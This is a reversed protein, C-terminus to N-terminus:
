RRRRWARWGVLGVVAVVAAIGGAVALNAPRVRGPRLPEPEPTPLEDLALGPRRGGGVVDVPTGPVAPRWRPHPSPDSAFSAMLHPTGAPDDGVAFWDARVADPRLDLRVYGRELLDSWVQGPVEEALEEALPEWGSPLQRGMPLSTVAPAVAEVAVPEGDHGRSVELAWSSHVDGSCLVVGGGRDEAAALLADREAPYGDWEDTCVAEGDVVAYGSPMARDVVAGAPVPVCLRGVVVASAVVCWTRARDRVREHAWRRQDPDLLSRGPDDLPLAGEEGVPADRGPIRTDLVVVEALDGLPFSRWMATLDDPDRLRGPVWEQRARAAAALRDSWPGHEDPDHEKAGDRWANDAVDHDDWVFVVPHRQHLAQLDPSSRTAAHRARYDDLTRCVRGPAAGLHGKAEEYVYDGVHLVLDVEDEALARYARLPGISPDACSALGLRVWDTAGHPLTRTRGTPSRDAGLDFGYHYTTAPQLGDVDVCVCGDAERDVPATGEAVRASGGPDAAVWWRVETAGTTEPDLRTWLLVRDALPDFSAVGHRFRSGPQSM